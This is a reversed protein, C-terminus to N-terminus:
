QKTFTQTSSLTIREWISPDHPANGWLDHTITANSEYEHGLSGTVITVDLSYPKFGAWGEHPMKEIDFTKKAFDHVGLGFVMLYYELQHNRNAFFDGIEDGDLPNHAQAYYHAKITQSNPRYYHRSIESYCWVSTRPEQRWDIKPEFVTLIFTATAKLHGEEVDPKDLSLAEVRITYKIGRISGSLTSGPSFLATKTTNDGNSSHVVVDNAYWTVTNYPESTEVSFTDYSVGGSLDTNSNSPSETIEFADSNNVIGFLFLSCIIALAIGISKLRLM